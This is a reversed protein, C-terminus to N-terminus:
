SPIEITGSYKNITSSYRLTFNTLSHLTTKKNYEDVTMKVTTDSLKTYYFGDVEFDYALSTQM